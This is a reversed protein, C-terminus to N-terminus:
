QRTALPRPSVDTFTLAVAPTEPSVTNVLESGFTPPVVFHSFVLKVILLLGYSVGVGRFFSLAGPWDPARREYSVHQDGCGLHHVSKGRDL